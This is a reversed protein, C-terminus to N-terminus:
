RLERHASYAHNTRSLETINLAEDIELITIFKDDIKAMTRIFDKRIKSGFEPAEMIHSKTLEYVQDVMDVIVGVETKEEDFEAEITIICSKKSIESAGLGLRDSLDLAPVVNGRINTVGAIFSQMMPAKTIQTYEIIEKVRSVNVAFMENKLYFTLYQNSSIDQQAATSM